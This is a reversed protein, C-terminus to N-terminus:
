FRLRLAVGPQGSIPTSCPELQLATAGSRVRNREEVHRSVHSVDWVASLSALGVGTLAVAVFDYFDDEYYSDRRSEAVVFPTGIVLASRLAVGRAGREGVKGYTYGALPGFVIGIAGIVSGGLASVMGADSGNAYGLTVLVGAAALPYMTSRAAVRAALEPSPLGGALLPLTDADAAGLPPSIRRAASSPTALLALALLVAALARM